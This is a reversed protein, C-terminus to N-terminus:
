QCRELRFTEMPTRPNNEDTERREFQLSTPRYDSPPNMQDPTVPRRVRWKSCILRAEVVGETVSRTADVTAFLLSACLGFRQLLPHLLNPDAVTSHVFQPDVPWRWVQMASWLLVQM